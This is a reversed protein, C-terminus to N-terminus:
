ELKELSDLCVYIIHGSILLAAQDPGALEIILGSDGPYLAYSSLDEGVGVHQDMLVAIDGQVM